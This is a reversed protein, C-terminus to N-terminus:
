QNQAKQRLGIWFPEAKVVIDHDVMRYCIRTHSPITVGNGTWVNKDMRVDIEITVGSGIFVGDDIIANGNIRTGAGIMVRNGIVSDPFIVVGEGIKVENGITVNWMIKAGEGVEVGAGFNAHMNEPLGRRGTPKNLPMGIEAGNHMVIGDGFETYPFAKVREGVEASGNFKVGRYITTGKGINIVVPADFMNKSTNITPSGLQVDGGVIATPDIWLSAGEALRATSVMFGGPSKVNKNSINERRIFYIPLDGGRKLNVERVWEPLARLQSISEVEVAPRLAKEAVPTQERRLPVQKAKTPTSTVM